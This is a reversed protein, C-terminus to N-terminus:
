FRFGITVKPGKGDIKDFGNEAGCLQQDDDFMLLPNHQGNTHSTASSQPFDTQDSLSSSGSRHTPEFLDAMNFMPPSNTNVVDDKTEDEEDEVSSPSV